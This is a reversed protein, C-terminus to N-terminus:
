QFFHLIGHFIFFFLARDVFFRESEITALQLARNPSVLLFSFLWSEGYGNTASMASLFTPFPQKVPKKLRGLGQQERMQEFFCM